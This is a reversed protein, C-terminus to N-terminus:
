ISFKRVIIQGSVLIPQSSKLNINLRYILLIQHGRDQTLMVQSWLSKIFLMRMNISPFAQGNQKKLSFSM